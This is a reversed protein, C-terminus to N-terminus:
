SVTAIGDFDEVTGQRTTSPVCYASQFSTSAGCAQHDLLCTILTLFANGSSLFVPDDSTSLVLVGSRRPSVDIEIVRLDTERGVQMLQISQNSGCDVKKARAGLVVLPHENERPEASISTLNRLFNLMDCLGPRLAQPDSSGCVITLHSSTHTYEQAQEM